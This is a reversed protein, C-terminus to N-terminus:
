AEICHFLSHKIGGLLGLPVILFEPKGDSGVASKQGSVNDVEEILPADTCDEAKVASRLSVVLHSSISITSHAM